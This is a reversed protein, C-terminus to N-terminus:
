SRQQKEPWPLWGHTPSAEHVAHLTAQASELTAAPVNEARSQSSQESDGDRGRLRFSITQGMGQVLGTGRDFSWKPRRPESVDESLGGEVISFTEEELAGASENWREDCANCSCSPYVADFFVGAYIRIAPDSAWVFTIPTAYESRPTLRVARTVDEPDHLRETLLHSGEEVDVDYNEILYEVVATAVTHLPAFREPHDIVSYTDEPPGDLDTWRNGYDIVTGTADRFELAEIFPRTYTSMGGVYTRRLARFLNVRKPHSRLPTIVTPYNKWGSLVWPYWRSVHGRHPGASTRALKM